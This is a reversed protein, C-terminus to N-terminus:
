TPGSKAQLRWPVKIPERLAPSRTGWTQSSTKCISPLSRRGSLGDEIEKHAVSLFHSVEDRDVEMIEAIESPSFEEITSLLLAERTNPTLKSLHAQARAAIGSEKGEVPAGASTWIAHFVKFLAVKSSSPGDFISRDSIISELTAAAYADGTKQSGTLARAYRRLYPLLRGVLESIPVQDTTDSMKAGKKM